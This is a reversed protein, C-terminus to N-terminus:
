ILALERGLIIRGREIIKVQRNHLPTQSLLFDSSREIIMGMILKKRFLSKNLSQEDLFITEVEVEKLIESLNDVFMHTNNIFPGVTISDQKEKVFYLFQYDSFQEMLDHVSVVEEGDIVVIAEKKAVTSDSKLLHKVRVKNDKLIRVEDLSTNYLWAKLHEGYDTTLKLEEDLLDVYNYLSHLFDAENDDNVYIKHNLIESIKKIIKNIQKENLPTSNLHGKFITKGRLKYFVDLTGDSKVEVSYFPNINKMEM